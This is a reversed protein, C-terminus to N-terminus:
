TKPIVAFMHEQGPILLPSYNQYVDYASDGRDSVHVNLYDMALEGSQFDESMKKFKPIVGHVSKFQTSFTIVMSNGGNRNAMNIYPVMSKGTIFCNAVIVIRNTKFLSQAALGKCLREADDQMTHDYRYEGTDTTFFDDNEFIDASNWGRVDEIAEKLKKAATSKGAGPLGRILVMRIDRDTNSMPFTMIGKALEHFNM